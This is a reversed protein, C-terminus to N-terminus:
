VITTASLASTAVVVEIETIANAVASAILNTRVIERLRQQAQKGEEKSLLNMRCASCLGILMAAGAELRDPQLIAKRLRAKLEM